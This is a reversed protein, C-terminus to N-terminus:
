TDRSITKLTGTVAGCPMNQQAINKSLFLWSSFFHNREKLPWDYTVRLFPSKNQLTEIQKWINTLNTNTNSFGLQNCHTIMDIVPYNM